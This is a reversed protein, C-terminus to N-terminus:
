GFDTSTTGEWGVCRFSVSGGIVRVGCKLPELEEQLVHLVVLLFVKEDFVHCLAM